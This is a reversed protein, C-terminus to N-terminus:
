TRMEGKSMWKEGKSLYSAESSGEVKAYLLSVIM